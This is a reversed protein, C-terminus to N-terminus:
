SRTHGARALRTGAKSHRLTQKAFGVATGLDKFGAQAHM